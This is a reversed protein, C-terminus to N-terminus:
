MYTCTHRAYAAIRLDWQLVHVIIEQAHTCQVIANIKYNYSCVSVCVYRCM